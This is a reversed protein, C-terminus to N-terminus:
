SFTGEAHVKSTSVLLVELDCPLVMCEYEKKENLGKYMKNYGLM